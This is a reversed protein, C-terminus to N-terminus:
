GQDHSLPLSVIFISGKGPESQVSVTGSFKEVIEKVYSLGLGFGKVNHINGTAERYFKEFIKKQVDRTMGIGKDEVSLVWSNGFNGTTITIDPKGDSYKNANDILNNIVNKFHTEDVFLHDNTANNVLKIEGSKERVQIKMNEFVSEVCASVNIHQLNMALEHRELLAMQLVTEVQSNMRKNEEKIIKTFYLISDRKDLTKPNMISDAALSITAIPTKFEHTMNNIFDSKIESIKKQRLIIYITISFTILIVLTFTLSGALIWVISKYIFQQKGKFHVILSDDKRFVDNPFLSINYKSDLFGDSFNESRVAVSDMLSDTVIAYEFDLGIGYDNLENELIDRLNKLDLRSLPDDDNKIEVLMKQFVVGLKDMNQSLKKKVDAMSQVEGPLELSKNKEATDNITQSTFKGSKLTDTMKKLYDQGGSDSGPLGGPLDILGVASIITDEGIVFTNASIDSTNNLQKSIQILTENTELRAIANKIAEHANQDFQEEKVKLANSIWLIQVGIIGILAVSMLVIVITIIKRNM